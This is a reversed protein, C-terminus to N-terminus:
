LSKNSLYNKLLLGSTLLISPALKIGYHILVAKALIYEHQNNIYQEANSNEKIFEKSEKSDYGKSWKNMLLIKIDKENRLIFIPSTYIKWSNVLPENYYAWLTSAGLLFSITLPTSLNKWEIPITIFSILLLSLMLLSYLKNKM